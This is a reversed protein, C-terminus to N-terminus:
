FDRWRVLIKRLVFAGGNICDEKAEVKEHADFKLRKLRLPKLYKQPILGFISLKLFVFRNKMGYGGAHQLRDTLMAPIVDGFRYEGAESL